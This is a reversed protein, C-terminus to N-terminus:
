QKGGIIYGGYKKRYHEKIKPNKQADALVSWHYEKGKPLDQQEIPMHAKQQQRGEHMLAYAMVCDDFCGEEAEEKGNEKYIFTLMEQLTDMDNILEPNDRVIARTRDILKPRTAATTQFGFKQKRERTIEDYIERKYQNYYNQRQLEKITTLGHNNVEVTLLADNYYRALKILEWAFRDPETHLRLRAVQEGTTNDAASAVSYDGNKLGEAVDAGIVYPYNRKPEQYIILPGSEDSIFKFEKGNEDYEIYGTKQEREKVQEIRRQLNTQNFVPRGTHLFAEDPFSPNEQKMQDADGHCDNQLKWRYWKIQEATIKYADVLFQEYESLGSVIDQREKETVPMRYDKYDFWAFFLPKWENKGSVADDWLKKFDNYGNATSEIVVETDPDNPVAQLIGALQKLPNKGEPSPWFAFESAHVQRYTDGRGINVDGAVQVSIRSNLGERKGKYNTPRDFILEKANSAKQLPKVYDPLREYMYKAKSFITTTAEGDDAVILANWNKKSTTNFLMKGQENTSVGEQRAKLVIIRVPKGETRMEEKVKNITKQIDNHVFAVERGSKDVIKIYKESFVDYKLFAEQMEFFEFPHM